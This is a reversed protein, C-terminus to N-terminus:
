LLHWDSSESERCSTEYAEISANVLQSDQHSCVISSRGNQWDSQMHPWEKIASINACLYMQVFWAYQHM